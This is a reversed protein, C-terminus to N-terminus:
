INIGLSKRAAQALCMFSLFYTKFRAFIGIIVSTFASKFISPLIFTIVYDIDLNDFLESYKPYNFANYSLLLNYVGM